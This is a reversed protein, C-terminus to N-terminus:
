RKIFVVTQYSKILDLIYTVSFRLFSLSNDTNTAINPWLEKMAQELSTLFIIINFFCTILTQYNWKLFITRLNLDFSPLFINWVVIIHWFWLIIVVILYITFSSLYFLCFTLHSFHWWTLTTCTINCLWLINYHM